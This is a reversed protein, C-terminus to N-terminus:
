HSPYNLDCSLTSVLAHVTFLDVTRGGDDDNQDGQIMSGLRAGGNALYIANLPAGLLRLLFEGTANRRSGVRPGDTRRVGTIWAMWRLRTGTGTRTSTKTERVLPCMRHSRLRLACQFQLRQVRLFLFLLRWARCLGFVLTGDFGRGRGRAFGRPGRIGRARYQATPAGRGVPGTPAVPQPAEMQPYMQQQAMQNQEQVWYREAGFRGRCSQVRVCRHPM